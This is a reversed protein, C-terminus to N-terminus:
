RACRRRRARRLTYEGATSGGPGATAPSTTSSWGAARRARILEKRQFYFTGMDLCFGHVFVVTPEAGARVVDARAADLDM